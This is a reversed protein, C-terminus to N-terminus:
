TNVGETTARGAGRKWADRENRGAEGRGARETRETGAQVRQKPGRGSRKYSETARRQRGGDGKGYAYRWGTSGAYMSVTAHSGWTMSPVRREEVRMRVGLVRVGCVDVNPMCICWVGYVMCWVHAGHVRWAEWVFASKKKIRTESEGEVEM